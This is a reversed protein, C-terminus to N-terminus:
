FSYGISLEGFFPSMFEYDKEFQDITSEISQKTSSAERTNFDVGYGLLFVTNFGNGWVWRKGANLGLSFSKLTLDFKESDLNGNGDYIRYRTHAGFFLSNM